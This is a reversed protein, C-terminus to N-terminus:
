RLGDGYGPCCLHKTTEFLEHYWQIDVFSIPSGSLDVSLNDALIDVIEDQIFRTMSTADESQSTKLRESIEIM